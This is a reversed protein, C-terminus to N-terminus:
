RQHARHAEHSPPGPRRVWRANRGTGRVSLLDDLERTFADLDSLGGLKPVVMIETAGITLWPVRRGTAPTAALPRLADLDSLDSAGAEPADRGGHARARKARALVERAAERVTTVRADPEGALMREDVAMAVRSEPNRARERVLDLAATARQADSFRVVAASAIPWAFFSARARLERKPTTPSNASTASTASTATTASKASKPDSWLPFCTADPPAEACSAGMTIAFTGDASTQTRATLHHAATLAPALSRRVAAMAEGPPGDELDDGFPNARAELRSGLVDLGARLEDLEGASMSALALAVTADEVEAASRPMEPAPATTTSVWVVPGRQERQERGEVAAGALSPARAFERTSVAASAGVTAILAGILQARVAPM